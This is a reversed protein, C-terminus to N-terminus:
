GAIGTARRFRAVGLRLWIAMLATGLTALVLYAAPHDALLKVGSRAMIVLTYHTTGAAASSGLLQDNVQGTTHLDYLYRLTFLHIMTGFVLLLIQNTILLTRWLPSEASRLTTWILLGILLPQLCLHACGTVHTEGVVAIGLVALAVALGGVVLARDRRGPRRLVAIWAAFLAVLALPGIMGPLNTQTIMFSDTYLQLLPESAPEQLGERDGRLVHPVGTVLLNHLKRAVVESGSLAEVEEVSSNSSLTDHLGYALVAPVFWTALIAACIAGIAATQRLWRAPGRVIGCLWHSVAIIIYPGASYHALAGLALLAFAVRAYRFRPRLMHRLYLLM